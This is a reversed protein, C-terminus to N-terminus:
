PVNGSTCARLWAIADGVSSIPVLECDGDVPPTGGGGQAAVPVLVRRFGLRLAEMVRLDLRAV